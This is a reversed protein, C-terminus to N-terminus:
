SRFAVGKVRTFQQVRSCIIITSKILFMEKLLRSDLRVQPFFEQKINVHNSEILFRIPIKIRGILYGFKRRGKPVIGASPQMIKIVTPLKRNVSVNQGFPCRLFMTTTTTDSNSFSIRSSSIIRIRIFYCCFLLWGIKKIQTGHVVAARCPRSFLNGIKGVFQKVADLAMQNLHVRASAAPPQGFRGRLEGGIEREGGGIFYERSQGNCRGIWQAHNHVAVAVASRVKDSRFQTQVVRDPASVHVRAPHQPPKQRFVRSQRMQGSLHVRVPMPRTRVRRALQEQQPLEDLVGIQIKPVHPRRADGM